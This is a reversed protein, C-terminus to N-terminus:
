ESKTHAGDEEEKAEDDCEEENEEAQKEKKGMLKGWPINSIVILLFFGGVGVTAVTMAIDLPHSPGAKLRARTVSIWENFKPLLFSNQNCLEDKCYCTYVEMGGEDGGAWEEHCWPWETSFASRDPTRPVCHRSMATRLVGEERFVIRSSSCVGGEDCVEVGGGSNPGSHDSYCSLSLSLDPICLSVLLVLLTSCTMM